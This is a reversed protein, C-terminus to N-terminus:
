TISFAGPLARQSVQAQISIPMACEQHIGAANVMEIGCCRQHGVAEQFPVALVLCDSRQLATELNWGALGPLIIFGKDMVQFFYDM